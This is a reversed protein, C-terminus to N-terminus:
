TFQKETSRNTQDLPNGQRETMKPSITQSRLQQELGSGYLIQERRKLVRMDHKELETSRNGFEMVEPNGLQGLGM